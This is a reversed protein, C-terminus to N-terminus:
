EDLLMEELQHKILSDYLVNLSFDLGHEKCLLYSKDYISDLIAYDKTSQLMATKIVELDKEKNSFRVNLSDAISSKTGSKLTNAINGTSTSEKPTPVTGVSKVEPEEQIDAETANRIHKIAFEKTILGGQMLNLYHSEEKIRVDLDNENFELKVRDKIPIILTDQYFDAELLLENFIYNTFFLSLTEQYARVEDKMPQSVIIASGGTTSNGIGLDVLSACMGSLVREQFHKIYSELRLAQSEAGKLEINVTHPTAVGGQDFMSDIISSYLDIESTGDALLRAPRDKDGVKVHIFPSANRYIMSEACQEISRLAILDDRVAELPPTGITIGSRKNQYVHLIDKPRYERSKLESIRHRYKQIQGSPSNATDITPAALVYLGAIPKLEVQSAGVNRTNGTSNDESRYKLIFANNFNVLNEAVEEVFLQFPTNTVYEIEELRKQIYKLNRKNSSTVEVGGKCIMQRKKRLISAVMGDTDIIRATESLDYEM